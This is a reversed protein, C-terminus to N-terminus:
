MQKIHTAYGNAPLTERIAATLTDKDLDHKDIVVALGRRNMNKANVIQDVFLPIAVMPKGYFIAELVSNMGAHTIFLSLRKDASVSENYRRKM